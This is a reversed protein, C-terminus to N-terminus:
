IPILAAEQTSQNSTSAFNKAMFQPAWQLIELNGLADEVLATCSEVWDGDNLYLIKEIKRMEAQHIHGCVIGDVGITATAKAVATEFSSVYAVAKKVKQKLYASLSWYPLGLAKRLAYLRDNLALALAYAADGARALWKAYAIADDFRDGHLVLLRKGAATTHVTEAVIEIGSFTRGVFPRLFEDHNGPIYVVRTGSDALGLITKVVSTQAATWFWRRQLQWGDLLDGVIYLTDCQNRELFDLLLEAKCGRTGLHIDSIFITRHKRVSRPFHAPPPAGLATRNTPMPIDLSQRTTTHIRWACDTM